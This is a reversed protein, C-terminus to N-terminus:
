WTFHCCNLLLPWEIVEVSVIAAVTDTSTSHLSLGDMQQDNLRM